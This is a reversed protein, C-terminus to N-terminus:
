IWHFFYFYFVCPGGGGSREAEAKRGSRDEINKRTGDTFTKHMRASFALHTADKLDTAEMRSM